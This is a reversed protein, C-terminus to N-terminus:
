DIRFSDLDRYIPAVPERRQSHADLYGVLDGRFSARELGARGALARGRRHLRPPTKDQEEARGRATERARKAPRRVPGALTQISDPSHVIRQRAGGAQFILGTQQTMAALMSSHLIHVIPVPHAWVANREFRVINAPM